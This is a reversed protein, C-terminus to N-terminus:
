SIQRGTIQYIHELTESFGAEVFKLGSQLYHYSNEGFRSYRDELIYPTVDPLVTIKWQILSYMKAVNIWFM